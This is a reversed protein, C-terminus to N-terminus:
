WCQLQERFKDSWTGGFERGRLAEGTGNEATKTWSVGMWPEEAAVGFRADETGLRVM